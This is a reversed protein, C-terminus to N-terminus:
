IRDAGPTRNQQLKCMINQYVEWRSRNAPILYKRRAADFVRVMRSSESNSLLHMMLEIARLGQFQEFPSRPSKVAKLAVDFCGKSPNTQLLLLAVMRDGDHDREFLREIFEASFKTVSGLQFVQDVIVANLIYNRLSGSLRPFLADYLRTYSDVEVRDRQSVGTGSGSLEVPEAVKQQSKRRKRGLLGEKLQKLGPAYGARFSIWQYGSWLPPLDCPEVDLPILRTRGERERAIAANVEQRVWMSDIARPTLLVVVASSGELGRNIADIWSEGAHISSPAIWVRAGARQLDGAIRHALKTDSSDYSIFVQM